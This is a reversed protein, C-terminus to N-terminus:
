NPIIYVGDVANAMATEMRELLQLLGLNSDNQSDNDVRTYRTYFGTYEGDKFLYFSQDNREYLEITIADKGATRKTITVSYLPKGTPTADLEEGDVMLSLIGSYLKRFYYDGSKNTVTADEGNITYVYDLTEDAEQEENTPHFIQMDYHKEPTILQINDLDSINILAVFSNVLASRQRDIVTFTSMDVTMLEDRGVVSMYRKGSGAENGITVTLEEDGAYLTYSYAPDDFGYKAPDDISTSVIESATVATFEALMTNIDTADAEWSFPETFRWSRGAAAENLESVSLEEEPVPTPTVDPTTEPNIVLLKAHMQDSRRTFDFSDVQYLEFPLIKTLVLDARKVSMTSVLGNVVVVRNSDLLKAYAKTEENRLPSGMQLVTESGDKATITLVATPTDLGYDALNAADESVISAVRLKLLANGKSAATSANLNAIEPQSLELEVKENSEGANVTKPSWVFSADANELKVEEVDAATFDTLYEFESTTDSTSPDTESGTRNQVVTYAVYAGILIVLAVLLAIVSKGKKM